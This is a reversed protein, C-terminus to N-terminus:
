ERELLERLLFKIEQVDAKLQEIEEDKQLAKQRAARAANAGSRNKNIIANSSEDRYM